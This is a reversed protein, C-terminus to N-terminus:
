ERRDFFDVLWGLRGVQRRLQAVGALELVADADLANQAGRDLQIVVLVAHNQRGGDRGEGDDDCRNVEGVGGLLFGGFIEIRSALGVSLARDADITAGSLIMETAVAPGVLEVAQAESINEDHGTEAKTAPTFIPHPLRDSDRLGAPLAVGCVAGTRQYDKWGSGSLYGRAVCEIPLPTTKRVLM